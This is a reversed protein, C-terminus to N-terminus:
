EPLAGSPGPLAHGRAGARGTSGFGGEGRQTEDLVEVQVPQATSVPLIVMQAVREGPSITYGEKRLCTLYAALEGRYDSDVVGVGNAMLVGHKAGLGSRGCLLCVYGPELQIAVGTPIKVIEGQRVEVPEDIAASLDLGASGPTARWPLTAGPRVLKVRLIARGILADVTCDLYDAMKTLNESTIKSTPRQKWKTFQSASIGTDKAARYATIGRQSMLALIKESYEM